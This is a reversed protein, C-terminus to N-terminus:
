TENRFIMQNTLTETIEKASSVIQAGNKILFNPAFSNEDDIRGPIALVERGQEIAYKATVLTGSKSSGEIVLVGLSLGSIIRNRELFKRPKPTTQDPYESVILGGENIIRKYLWTNIKPSVVDVGSALVAITKGGWDLCTKQVEADVGLAMGSVIIFNNRVLEPVLEGIVKRGYISMNRSGVIAITKNEKLLDLNGLCYLGKPCDIINKLLASFRITDKRFFVGAM